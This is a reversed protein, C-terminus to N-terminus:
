LREIVFVKIDTQATYSPVAVLDPQMPIVFGDNASATEGAALQVARRSWKTTGLKPQLCFRISNAAVPTEVLLVGAPIPSIALDLSSQGAVLTQKFPGIHVEFAGAVYLNLTSQEAPTTPLLFTKVHRAGVEPRSEHVLLWDFEHRIFPYM